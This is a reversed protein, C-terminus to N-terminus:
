LSHSNVTFLIYIHNSFTPKCPFIKKLQRLPNWIIFCSRTLINVKGVKNMSLMLSQSLLIFVHLKATSYPSVGWSIWLILLELNYEAVYCILLWGTYWVHFESFMCVLLMIHVSYTIYLLLYTYVCLYTILLPFLEDIQLLTLLYIKSSKSPPCPIRYNYYLYIIFIFCIM